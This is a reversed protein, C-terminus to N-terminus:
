VNEKRELTEKIARRIWQSPSRDERAAMERVRELDRESLRFTTQTLVAEPEIRPRSM